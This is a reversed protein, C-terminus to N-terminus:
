EVSGEIKVFRLYTPGNPGVTAEQVYGSFVGSFIFEKGKFKDILEQDYSFILNEGPVFVEVKVDGKNNPSLGFLIYESSRTVRQVEGSIRVLDGERFNDINELFNYVSLVPTPTTAPAAPTTAPAAPTTAPAAPTTATVTAASTKDSCSSSVITTTLILILVIVIIIKKM